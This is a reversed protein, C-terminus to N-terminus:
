TFQNNSHVKYGRKGFSTGVVFTPASAEIGAAKAVEASSTQFAPVLESDGAVSEFAAFDEGQVQGGATPDTTQLRTIYGM